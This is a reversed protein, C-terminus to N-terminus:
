HHNPEKEKELRKERQNIGIAICELENNKEVTIDLQGNIM